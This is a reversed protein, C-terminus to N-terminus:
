APRGAKIREFVRKKDFKTHSEAFDFDGLAHIETADRSSPTAAQTATTAPAVQGPVPQGPVAGLNPEYQQQRHHNQQQQHQHQQQHQGQRRNRAGAYGQQDGENETTTITRQRAEAGAKLDAEARIQGFVSQKDFKSLNEAFDFDGRAQITAAGEDAFEHTYHAASAPGRGRRPQKKNSPRRSGPSTSRVKGHRISGGSPQTQGEGGYMGRESRTRRGGEKHQKPEGVGSPESVGGPPQMWGESRYRERRSRRSSKDNEEKGGISMSEFEATVGAESQDFAARPRGPDPGRPPRPAGFDRQVAARARHQGYGAHDIKRPVGNESSAAAKRDQGAPDQIHGFGDM